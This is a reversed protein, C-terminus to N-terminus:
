PSSSRSNIPRSNLPDRLWTYSKENEGTHNVVIAAEPFLRKLEEAKASGENSELDLDAAVLCDPYEGLLKLSWPLDPITTMWPTWWSQKTGWDDLCGHYVWERAEHRDHVWKLQMGLWGIPISLVLVVVFLTRLSFSFWRRRPKDTPRPMM